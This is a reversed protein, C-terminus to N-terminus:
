GEVGAVRACLAAVRNSVASVEAALDLVADWLRGCAVEYGEDTLLDLDSVDLAAM